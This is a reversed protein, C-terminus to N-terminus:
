PVPLHQHVWRRLPAIDGEREPNLLHNRLAEVMREVDTISTALASFAPHRLLESAAQRAITTAHQEPRLKKSVTGRSCACREALPTNTLGEGFGQWLCHLKPDAAAPTLVSPLVSAAARELASHIRRLQEAPSESDDEIVEHLTSPDAVELHGGQGDQRELSGLWHQSLLRRLAQDMALLHDRTLQPSLDPAIGELFADSPDWGSSRGTRKRYAEKAQPYQACYAAHLAVARDSTLAGVGFFAMSERIRKGSTDALLAWPSILLLGHEKLYAKLPAHAQLKTRAWHPLGAGRSADYSCIVQATFPAISATPQARLQLYDLPRGGEDLAYSALALLDLGYEGVFQRHIGRLKEELPHSVHCRLCLFAGSDGADHCAELLLRDGSPTPEQLGHEAATAAAAAPGLSGIVLGSRSGAASLLARLERYSSTM